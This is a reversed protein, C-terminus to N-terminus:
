SALRAALEDAVRQALDSPVAAAIAEPSLGALVGAVIAPEDVLDTGALKALAAEIRATSANVAVVRDFGNAILVGAPASSGDQRKLPDSWDMSDEMTTNGMAANVAQFLRDWPFNPGPDTHDTGGWARRMDDHGYFAKVKPNSQMESVSARRVAIGDHQCVQALVAGLKVWAVSDLWHQRTWSNTGTIEVAVANDNGQSSGAHWAKVDTDLSQVVSDSDCYFHSSVDDTRRTAYTAESEAAATNSTNHIAIGYKKGDPDASSNRGQVFPIGTVKM